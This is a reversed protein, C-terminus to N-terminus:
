MESEVASNAGTDTGSAVSKGASKGRKQAAQPNGTGTIPMLKRRKKGGPVGYRCTPDWQQFVLDGTSPGAGSDVHDHGPTSVPRRQKNNGAQCRPKLNSSSAVTVPVAGGADLNSTVAITNQTTTGTIPAAPPLTNGPWFSPFVPIRAM